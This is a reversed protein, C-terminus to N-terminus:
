RQETKPYTHLATKSHLPWFTTQVNLDRRQMRNQTRTILILQLNPPVLRGVCKDQKPACLFTCLHLQLLWIISIFPLIIWQM